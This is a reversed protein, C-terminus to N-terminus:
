VDQWIRRIESFEDTVLCLDKWKQIYERSNINKSKYYNNLAVTLYAARQKNSLKLDITNNSDEVSIKTEEILNTLGIELNELIKEAILEPHEEFVITMVNLFDYLYNINYSRINEGIANILEVTSEPSVELLKIVGRLSDTVNQKSWSFLNNYLSLRIELQEKSLSNYLASKIQLNSLNYNPLEDIVRAVDIKAQKELLNYNPSLINSFIFILHNFRAKFEDFISGFPSSSDKDLLFKKDGDWWEITKKALLNIDKKEWAYSINKNSTGNIERFLPIEGAHFSIGKKRKNAQVNFTSTSIYEKLLQAPNINIPHPLGIFAFNYYNTEVPFGTNDDVKSWILKGLKITQAESLLDLELLKVLRTIATEREKPTGNVTKFLQNIIKTNIKIKRERSLM